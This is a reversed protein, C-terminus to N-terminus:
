NRCMCKFQAYAIPTFPKARSTGSMDELPAGGIWKITQSGTVNEGVKPASMSPDSMPLASSQDVSLFESFPAKSMLKSCVFLGFL